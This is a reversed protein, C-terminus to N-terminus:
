RLAVPPIWVALFHEPDVAGGARLLADAEAVLAAGEDGGLLAGVALRALQYDTAVGPQAQELWTRGHAVADEQRGELQARKM